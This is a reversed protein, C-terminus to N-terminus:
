MPIPDVLMSRINDKTDRSSNTYGDGYLYIVEVMRTLNVVRMVLSFPIPAPKLCFKNLDKWASTIMERIKECAESRSLSHEKMYCEFASAVHVRKQEHENSRIDDSLRAILSSDMMFKPRTKLWDFAEKTAEEGMGVFSAASMYIYGATVLSVKLYEGLTPVYGSNLWVAEKFYGQVLAKTEYQLHDTRYFKEGPILEDEIEDVTNLIAVYCPRMYEPLQDVVSLDWRKIADTFVKLDMFRGDVDFNDDIISALKFMRVVINRARAYHPEFYVGLIWFYGEVLRDRAFPYKAALGIDKWWRTLEKLEKRHMSQILNFDLKALELIVDNQQKQQQSLSVYFKTDLRAIRKRMPLQLALGVRAALPGDLRTMLSTLQGKTFSIAEDLTDEGHTGYFAAEYLSLLGEVDSCLGEKFNGESDKFKNFVDSSANYGEQRLLRFRLAVIKLDDYDVNADYIHELAYNIKKEFHYAVGLRQIEDIMIMEEVSGKARILMKKVEEKLERVKRTWADIKKHDETHSIFFDGWVSPHFPSPRDAGNKNRNLPPPHVASSLPSNRLSAM